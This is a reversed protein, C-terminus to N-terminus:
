RESGTAGLADLIEESALLEEYEERHRELLAALARQERAQRREAEREDREVLLQQVRPSSLCMRCTVQEVSDAMPLEDIKISSRLRCAAAVM